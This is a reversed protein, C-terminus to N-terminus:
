IHYSIRSTMEHDHDDHDRDINSIIDIVSDIVVETMAVLMVVLMIVIMSSRASGHQSQEPRRLCLLQPTLEPQRRLRRCLAPLLELSGLVRGRGARRLPLHSLGAAVRQRGIGRTRSEKSADDYGGHRETGGRHRWETHRSM